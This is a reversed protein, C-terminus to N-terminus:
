FSIFKDLEGILQLWKVKHFKHSHVSMTPLNMTLTVNQKIRLYRLYDSTYM